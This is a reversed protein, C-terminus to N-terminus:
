DLQKLDDILNQHDKVCCLPLPLYGLEGSSRILAPRAAYLEGMEVGFRRFSYGVIGVGDDTCADSPASGTPFKGACIPLIGHSARIGRRLRLRSDSLPPGRHRTLSWKVSRIAWRRLVVKRDPQQSSFTRVSPKFVSASHGQQVESVAWNTWAPATPKLGSSAWKAPLDM